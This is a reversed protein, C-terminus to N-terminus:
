WRGNISETAEAVSAAKLSLDDRGAFFVLWTSKPGWRILCFTMGNAEGDTSHHRAEFSGATEDCGPFDDQDDVGAGTSSTPFTRVAAQVRFPIPAGSGSIQRELGAM